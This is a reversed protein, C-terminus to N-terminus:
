LMLCKLGVNLQKIKDAILADIPVVRGSIAAMEPGIFANLLTIVENKDRSGVLSLEVVFSDPAAEKLIVGDAWAVVENQSIVNTALGLSFVRYLVPYTPHTPSM